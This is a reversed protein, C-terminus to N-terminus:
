HTNFVKPLISKVLKKKADTDSIFDTLNPSEYRDESTMPEIFFLKGSPPSIKQPKVESFNDPVSYGQTPVYRDEGIDSEVWANGTSNGNSACETLLYLKGEEYIYRKGNYVFEDGNHGVMKTFRMLPNDLSKKRYDRKMRDLAEIITKDAEIEKYQPHYKKPIKDLAIMMVRYCDPCYESNNYRDFCGDGSAQYTYRTGCHKCQKIVLRM